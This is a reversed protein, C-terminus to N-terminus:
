AGDLWPPKPGRRYYWREFAAVDTARVWVRPKGGAGPATRREAPLLGRMIWTRVTGAIVGLRAAVAAVTLWEPERGNADM